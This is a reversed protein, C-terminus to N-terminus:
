KIPRAKGTVFGIKLEDSTVNPDAAHEIVNELFHKVGRRMLGALSVFLFPPWLVHVMQLMQLVQWRM